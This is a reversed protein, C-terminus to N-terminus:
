SFDAPAPRGKEEDSDTDIYKLKNTSGVLARETENQEYNVDLTKTKKNKLLNDFGKIDM